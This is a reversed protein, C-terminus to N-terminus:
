TACNGLFAEERKLHSVCFNSRALNTVETSLKANPAHLSTQERFRGWGGLGLAHLCRTAAAELRRRRARENRAVRVNAHRRSRSRCLDSVLDKLEIIAEILELLVDLLPILGLALSFLCGRLLGLRLVILDHGGHVRHAAVADVARRRRQNGRQAELFRAPKEIRGSPLKDERDRGIAGDAGAVDRDGDLAARM